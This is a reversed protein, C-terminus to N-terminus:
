ESCLKGAGSHIEAINSPVAGNDLMRRAPQSIPAGIGLAAEDPVPAATLEAQLYSVTDM